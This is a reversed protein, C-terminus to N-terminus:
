AIKGNKRECHFQTKKGNKTCVKLVAKLSSVQHGSPISTSGPVRSRKSGKTNTSTREKERGRATSILCEVVLPLNIKIRHSKTKQWM